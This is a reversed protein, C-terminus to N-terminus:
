EIALVKALKNCLIEARGRTKLLRDTCILSYAIAARTFRKLPIAQVSGPTFDGAAIDPLIAGCCGAKVARAAHSFSTCDLAVNVKIGKADAWRTVSDRMDGAIPLALPVQGLISQADQEDPAALDKPVYLSWTLKGLPRTKVGGKRPAVADSKVLGFDRLGEQVSRVIERTQEHYVRFIVKQPKTQLQSLRPLLLWEILTNPAAISYPVAGKAQEQRFDNLEALHQRAMAALHRGAETLKLERGQRHVLDADFYSELDRIQRSMLAQKSKDGAAAAAISGNEDVACFAALRDYSLGVFAPRYNM